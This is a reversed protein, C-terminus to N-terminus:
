RGAIVYDMNLVSLFGICYMKILVPRTYTVLICNDTKLSKKVRQPQADAVSSAMSPHDNDITM